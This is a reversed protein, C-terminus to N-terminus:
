LRIFRLKATGRSKRYVGDGERSGAENTNGELTDVMMGRNKVVFGIHGTGDENLWYFLDGREPKDVIRGTKQAWAAWNRVAAPLKPLDGKYGATKLCWFVFSACYAYGPGLGVAALFKQVWVGRNQGTERVRVVDACYAAALLAKEKPSAAEFEEDTMWPAYSKDM